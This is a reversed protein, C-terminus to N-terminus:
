GIRLAALPDVGAARRAPVYSAALAVLVFLVAVAVFTFPDTPSVQFLLDQLLRTLALAGGLGLVVGTLALLLVHRAVLSLINSRPAGLARRIGIEKTRQVVSYSIVGYLGIMALLTAAGAFTGLLRMMLRLQGESADVVDEMTSIDSVPQNPDTALVQSRIVNSFSLPDGNARVVLVASGPPKQLCPLYIGPRPDSDKGAQHIDSSVAVIEKPRDDNGIFLHQGIPDPGSPYEPWFVRALSENIIAVPVAGADDHTTFSRGRKLPIQLTRFYDPTINQFIAIPRENLKRPTRGALDLTTGMWGDAMPLTLTVAASEVGPLLEERQVLQQYFTAKKQDTDYRAPSLAIKMTLLRAPQFGPDVRYVRAMSEILLTAGILLVVSLAVQGIVLLGRSGFVFIPKSRAGITGEGSGRLVGALDPNSAAV